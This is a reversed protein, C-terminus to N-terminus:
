FEMGLRQLLQNQKRINEAPTSEAPTFHNTIQPAFTNSNNTSEYIEGVRGTGTPRVPATDIPRINRLRRVFDTSIDVMDPRMWETAEEAKAIVNSKEADMGDAWGIMMNRGVMNRMWRSPSHIQLAGAIVRKVSEAISTAKAMLAGEMSAMGAIMGEIANKGVTRLDMTEKTKKTLSAIKAVWDKELKTLETNAMERLKNIEQETEVRLKENEKIAQERALRAKTGYLNSYSQLQEDTMNVLATLQPLAKPGMQRLEELLGDDIGRKALIEMMASWQSMAIVQDLLNKTLEEGSEKVAMDVEDFLGVFNHLERARDDVSKKYADTLKKEEEILKTNIESMKTQYEVNAKLIEDNLKSIADRYAKQAEIKADTGDKFKGMSRGWMIAEDVLSIEELDKKDNIFKKISDLRKNDAESRIKAKDAESKVMIERIKDEAKRTEEAVKKNATTRINLQDQQSKSVITNKQAASKKKSSQLSSQLSSEKGKIDKAAKDRIDQQKKAADTAIKAIKEDAEKQIKAVAANTDNTSKIIVDGVSKMLKETRARRSEVGINLGDMIDEGADIMETAPSQIGLVGKFGDLLGKGIDKAKNIVATGMAGIGNILGQMIDKGIQTMDIGKFFAMVKDWIGKIVTQVTTFINRVGNVLNTFNNKVSTVIGRVAFLIVEKIAEWVKAGMTRLLQFNGIAKDVMGKFFNVIATAMKSVINQANTGFNKFFNVISTWMNKILGTSSKGLNVLLTRIGGVFSLTLWGLIVDIAGFFLQKVGEWMKSFDGTFLGSFIKVLGMIVDLAGGIIQKIATWVMDIVFKVAPMIFDIIAKITEFANKVAQIIQEGNEEWFKRLVELKTGVFEVIDGIIPIVYEVIFGFAWKVVEVIGNFAATAIEVAIDLYGKVTEIFEPTIGLAAMIGGSAAVYEKIRDYFGGLYAAFQEVMERATSFANTLPTFDVGSLYGSLKGIATSVLKLANEMSKGTQAIMDRMTPLGNNTLMEDISQIISMTGRTVAAKMNDFAAGWSAGAEKAAGQIKFVGNTGEMMATTVTDIFDEASIKGKSLDKQVSEADRGTAQAYMGVADIGAEMVRNLQDMGVKGTTTMKAMADMVTALQENSGNGYFAVADGWAQVYGTAKEVDVGRTVFNQVAQAATDLGYATGTVTNRVSELAKQTKEASGTLTTMVREFSEMVDIRKFASQISGAVMDIGKKALAVIGLAGALKGVTVAGSKAADGVRGLASNVGDIGKKVNKDNLDVDIIVRGDSM